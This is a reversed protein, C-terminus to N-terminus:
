CELFRVKLVHERLRIGERFMLMGKLAGCALTEQQSWFTPAKSGPERAPQIWEEPLLKIAEFWAAAM